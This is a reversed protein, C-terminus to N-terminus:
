VDRVKTKGEKEIKWFGLGKFSKGRESKGRRDGERRGLTRENEVRCFREM